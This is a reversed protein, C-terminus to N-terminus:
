LAAPGPCNLALTHMAHAAPVYLRDPDPCVFLLTHMSQSAPVYLKAPMACVFLLTHIAHAAPVYALTAPVAQIRPAIPWDHVCVHWTAPSEHM